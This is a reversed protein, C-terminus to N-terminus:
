IATLIPKERKKPNGPNGAINKGLAKDRKRGHNPIM